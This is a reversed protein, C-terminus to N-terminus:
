RIHTPSFRTFVQVSPESSDNKVLTYKLKPRIALSKGAFKRMGLAKVKGRLLYIKVETSLFHSTITSVTQHKSQLFNSPLNRNDYPKESNVKSTM